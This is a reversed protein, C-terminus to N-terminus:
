YNFKRREKELAKIVPKMRPIRNSLLDEIEEETLVLIYENNTIDKEIIKMKEEKLINFLFLIAQTLAIRGLNYGLEQNILKPTFNM